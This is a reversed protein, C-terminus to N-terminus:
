QGGCTGVAGCYWVSAPQHTCGAGSSVGRGTRVTDRHQTVHSVHAMNGMDARDGTVQPTRLALYECNCRRAPVSVLWGAGALWRAM